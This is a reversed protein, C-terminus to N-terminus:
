GVQWGEFRPPDNPGSLEPVTWAMSKAPPETTCAFAPTAAWALCLIALM